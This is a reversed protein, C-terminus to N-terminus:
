AYVKQEVIISEAPLEIISYDKATPVLIFLERVEDDVNAFEFSINLRKTINILNDLVEFARSDIFRVGQIDLIIKGCSNQLLQIILSRLKKINRFDIRKIDISSIVMAKNHYGVSFM